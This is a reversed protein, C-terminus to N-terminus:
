CAGFVLTFSMLSSGHCFIGVKGRGNQRRRQWTVDGVEDGM